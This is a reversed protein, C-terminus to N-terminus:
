QNLALIFKIRVNKEGAAVGRRDSGVRSIPSEAEGLTVTDGLDCVVAVCGSFRFTVGCDADLILRFLLKPNDGTSLSSVNSFPLSKPPSSGISRIFLTFRSTDGRIAASFSASPSADDGLWRCRTTRAMFLGDMFLLLGALSNLRNEEGFTSILLLTCCAGMDSGITDVGEVDAVVVPVFGKLLTEVGGNVPGRLLFSNHAEGIIADEDDSARGVVAIM